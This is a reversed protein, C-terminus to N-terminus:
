SICYFMSVAMSSAEAQIRKVEHGIKYFRQFFKTM